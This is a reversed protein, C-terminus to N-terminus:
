PAHLWHQSPCTWLAPGMLNAIQILTLYGVVALGQDHLETVHASVPTPDQMCGSHLTM